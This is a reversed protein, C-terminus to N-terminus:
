KLYQSKSDPLWICVPALYGLFSTCRRLDNHMETVYLPIEQVTVNGRSMSLIGVCCEYKTHAQCSLRYLSQSYAALDPSRIGTPRSKGGTWVPGSAWAAEQLIPVPNKRPTIYPRPMSTVVWGRRTSSDQFLLAIGRGVRQAVVPGAAPVSNEEYKTVHVWFVVM